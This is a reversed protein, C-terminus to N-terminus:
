SNSIEIVIKLQDIQEVKPLYISDPLHPATLIVRLDDKIFGSAISNVRVV